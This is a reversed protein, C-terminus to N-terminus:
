ISVSCGLYRGALRTMTTNRKGQPVGGLAKIVWNPEKSEGGDPAPSSTEGKDIKAKADNFLKVRKLSPVPKVHSDFTRSQKCLEDIEQFSLTSIEEFTLPIKHKGNKRKVNAIRLMKGKGGAYMSEDLTKISLANKFTKAIHKYILHLHTHGDTAGIIEAPAIVHAGKAGSAYLALANPDVDYQTLYEIMKNADDFAKQPDKKCDFDFPFDGRRTPEGTGNPELSTTTFFMAGKDIAQERAEPTDEIEKWKREQAEEKWFIKQTM